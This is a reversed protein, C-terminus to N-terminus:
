QLKIKRLAYFGYGKGKDSLYLISNDDVLVPQKKQDPSNTLLQNAYYLQNDIISVEENQRPNITTNTCNSQLGQDSWFHYCLKGDQIWYDMILSNIETDFVRVSKDQKGPYNVISPISLATVLVFSLKWNVLAKAQYFSIGIVVMFLLLKLFNFPFPLSRLFGIPMVTMVFLLFLITVIQRPSMTNLLLPVVLCFLIISYSSGQPSLLQTSVILLAFGYYDNGGKVILNIACALIIGSFLSSVIIYMLDNDWLPKVNFVEDYVFLYKLLMHVSQTGVTYASHLDGSAARPLIEIFYIKWMEIGLLSVFAILMTLCSVALTIAVRFDKKLLLYLFIIAPFVKIFIAAAWVLSAPISKGQRYFLYGEALLVTVLLYSQGFLVNSRLPIIFVFPLLLLFWTERCQNFLLLRRFSFLFLILCISGFVVKAMKVNLFTFPYFLIAVSPPNPNFSAFVGRFGLNQITENFSYPDFIEVTLNGKQKLLAPFYSNAFDHIPYHYCKYIFFIGLALTIILSVRQYHFPPKM